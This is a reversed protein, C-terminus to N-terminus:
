IRDARRTAAACVSDTADKLQSTNMLGQDLQLPAVADLALIFHPLATAQNRKLSSVSGGLM